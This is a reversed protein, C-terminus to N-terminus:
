VAMRAYQEALKSYDPNSYVAPPRRWEEKPKPPPLLRDFGLDHMKNLVDVTMVGINEALERYTQTRYNKQLYELQAASWRPPVHYHPMKRLGLRSMKIEIAREKCDFIVALEANTHKKYIERLKQEM